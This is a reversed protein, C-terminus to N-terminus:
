LKLWVKLEKQESYKLSLTESKAWVPRSWWGGIKLKESTVPIVPRHWWHGLKEVSM